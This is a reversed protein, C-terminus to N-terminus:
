GLLQVVDYLFQKVCYFSLALIEIEESDSPKGTIPSFPHPAKPFCFLVLGSDDTRVEPM